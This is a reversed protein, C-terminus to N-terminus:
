GKRVKRRLNLLRATLDYGLIRILKRTLVQKPTIAYNMIHKKTKLYEMALAIAQDGLNGYAPADLFFVRRNSALSPKEVTPVIQKISDKIHKLAYNAEIPLVHKINMTM